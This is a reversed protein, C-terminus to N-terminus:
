LPNAHHHHAPRTRWVAISNSHGMVYCYCSTAPKKQFCPGARSPFSAFSATDWPWRCIHGTADIPCDPFRAKIQILGTVSRHGPGTGRVSDRMQAFTIKTRGPM